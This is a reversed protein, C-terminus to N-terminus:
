GRGLVKADGSGAFGRGSVVMAMVLAKYLEVHVVQDLRGVPHM